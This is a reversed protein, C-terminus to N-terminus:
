DIVHDSVSITKIFIIADYMESFKKKYLNDQKPNYGPGGLILQKKVSKFFSTEKESLDTLDLFYNDYKAKNLLEAFTGSPPEAITFKKWDSNDKSEVIYGIVTGSGFDFGVSYYDNKYFKRLHYGLNYIPRNSYNAFGDTNVHDNHAWIFAKGNLSFNDVIYRANEFMNLDRVQSYPKQVYLTYMKLYNLARVTAKLALQEAATRNTLESLLIKEIADLHPIQEYAWKNRKTYNVTKGVCSDVVTLLTEPVAIKYKAVAERIETNINSVVQIDMGYVRIQQDTPKGQNFNRMWELLDVVEQCYWPALTFSNAIEKKSATGGSLWNNIPAEIPYSDELIFVRIGKNEVLYKFFKAKVDFFEKGHHTAEGFGFIKANQFRLSAKETFNQLPKDASVDTLPVAHADIWRLTENTQASLSQAIFLYVAVLIKRM